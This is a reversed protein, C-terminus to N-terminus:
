CKGQLRLGSTPQILYPTCDSPGGRQRSADGVEHLWRVNVADAIRTIM